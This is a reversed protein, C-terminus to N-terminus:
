KAYCVNKVFEIDLKYTFVAFFFYSLLFFSVKYLSHLFSHFIDLKYLRCWFSFMVHLRMHVTLENFCMAHSHIFSFYSLLHLIDTREFSNQSHFENPFSIFWHHDFAFTRWRHRYIHILNTIENDYEILLKLTKTWAIWFM